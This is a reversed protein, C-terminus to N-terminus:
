PSDKGMYHLSRAAVNDTRLPSLEMQLEEKARKVTLEKFEATYEQKPIKM